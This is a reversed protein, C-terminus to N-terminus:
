PMGWVFLFYWCVEDWSNCEGAKIFPVRKTHLEHARYALAFCGAKTM